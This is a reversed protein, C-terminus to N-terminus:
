SASGPWSTPEGARGRRASNATSASSRASRGSRRSRCGAARRVAGRAGRRPAAGPRHQLDGVRRGRAPAPRARLDLAVQGANTQVKNAVAVHTHLDPDGARSDRHTFAAAILGRTEVQRAGDKGERTFLAHEEIFAIADAVAAHHAEEIKAAVEPPAIAWLASVSKVPSFTLDFGAVATQRPRSYRALAASLEQATAPERGHEAVFFERAATSRATAREASTPMSAHALLEDVRANFADVTENRM